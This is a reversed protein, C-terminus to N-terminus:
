EEAVFVTVPSAVAFLPTNVVLAAPTGTTVAKDLLPDRNIPEPLPAGAAAVIVAPLAFKVTVFPAPVEVIVVTVPLPSQSFIEVAV